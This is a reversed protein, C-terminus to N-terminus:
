NSHFAVFRDYRQMRELIRQKSAKSLPFFPLGFPTRWWNCSNLDVSIANPIGEYSFRANRWVESYVVTGARAGKTRVIFGYRFLDALYKYPPFYELEERDMPDSRAAKFPACNLDNSRQFKLILSRRILGPRTCMFIENMNCGGKCSAGKFSSVRSRRCGFLRADPSM